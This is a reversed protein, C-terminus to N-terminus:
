YFSCHRRRARAIHRPPALPRAAGGGQWRWKCHRFTPRDTSFTCHGGRPDSVQSGVRPIVVAQPVLPRSCESSPAPVQRHQPPHPLVVAWPVLHGTCPGSVTLVQIYTATPAPARSGTSCLSMRRRQERRADPPASTPAAAEHSARVHTAAAEPPCKTTNLHACSCPHGHFALVM